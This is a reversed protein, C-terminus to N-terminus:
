VPQKKKGVNNFSPLTMHGRVSVSCLQEPRDDYRAMGRDNAGRKTQQSGSGRARNRM